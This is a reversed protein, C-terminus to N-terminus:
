LGVAQKALGDAEENGEVGSHGKVHVFKIVMEERASKVFDYYAKTAEKNRKWIGEAWARIGEYDYYVVLEKIGLEKAKQIAAMSGFIEGAVNRMSSLEEDTGNGQLIYKYDGSILFGGYGFTRTSSNFSGDVFAYSIGELAPNLKDAKYDGGLFALAEAESKFSKFVAGAFGKIQAECEEWSTFIGTKRGKKVAYYKAM